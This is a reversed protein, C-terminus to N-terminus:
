IWGEEWAIRAAEHRTDLTGIASSLYNRVTGPALHLEAAIDNVSGGSRAARLVDLERSSLPCAEETLAMAAIDPDVFRRGSHVRRVVDAVQHVPTSKTVFGAAGATLARRLVGPRAHRTVVVGRIGLPALQECVAVGDLAPMELDVLAVDVPTARATDVAARGDGCEAVVDLDDELRLLAVLATRTMEEDDAVLVRIPDM